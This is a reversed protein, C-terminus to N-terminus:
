GAAVVVDEEVSKSPVSSLFPSSTKYRRPLNPAITTTTSPLFIHSVPWPSRRAEM